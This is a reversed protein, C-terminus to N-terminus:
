NVPLLIRFLTYTKGDSEIELKGDHKEIFEKCISLGIGTGKENNTGLTSETNSNELVASIREKSIGTGFDKIELQVNDSFASCSILIINNKPSYKISNSLINRIASCLMEKDGNLKVKPDIEKKFTIGKLEANLEVDNLVIGILDKAFIEEKNVTIKQQQILAWNLLNNILEVLRNINKILHTSYEKIESNNQNFSEEFILESFGLISTFPGKLDHAVISFLKDKASNAEQLESNKQNIVKLLNRKKSVLYISYSFLILILILLISTIILLNTRSDIETRQIDNEKQLLMRREESLKILNKTKLESISSAIEQNILSDNIAIYKKLFYNEKAIDNKLRYFEALKIFGDRKISKYGYHTALKLSNDLYYFVSDTIENKLLLSGLNLYALSMSFKDNIELSMKVAKKFNYSALETKNKKEYISGLLNFLQVLSPKDDIQYLIVSSQILILETTKKKKKKKKKKKLRRLSYSKGIQDDLSDSYAFARQIYSEALDYYKLRQFILALNNLVKSVAKKDGLFERINLSESYYKYSNEIDGKRWYIIGLNNYRKALAPLDDLEKIIEISKHMNSIASDLEGLRWYILGLDNYTSSILKPNDILNQISLIKKSYKNANVADFMKSYIFSIDWYIQATQNYNKESLFFIAAEKYVEIAKKLDTIKFLLFALTDYAFYKQYGSEENQLRELASYIIKIAESTDQKALASNFLNIDTEVLFSKNLEEVQAFINISLLIFIVVLYYKTVSNIFSM